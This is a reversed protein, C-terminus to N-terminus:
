ASVGADLHLHPCKWSDHAIDQWVDIGDLLVVGMGSFLHTEIHCHLMFPGPNVVHYRIATWSVHCMPSMIWGPGRRCAYRSTRIWAKPWAIGHLHAAISFALDFRDGALADVNQKGVACQAPEQRRINPWGGSVTAPVRNAQRM